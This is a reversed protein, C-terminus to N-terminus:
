DTSFKDESWFTWFKSWKGLFMAGSMNCGTTSLTMYVLGPAALSFGRTGEIDVTKTVYIALWSLGQVPESLTSWDSSWCLEFGTGIFFWGSNIDFQYVFLKPILVILAFNLCSTGFSRLVVSTTALKSNQFLLTTSTDDFNVLTTFEEFSEQSSNWPIQSSGGSYFM